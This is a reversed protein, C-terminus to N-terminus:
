SFRANMWEQFGTRQGPSMHLGCKTRRWLVDDAERAWEKEIFWRVEAEYLGGGFWQGLQSEARAEGLVERALTGHRRAYRALLAPPLGPYRLRLEEFLADFGGSAFDGGPLAEQATWGQTDPFWPALRELVHEALRRYTTIKGGFVSVLPAEKEGSGAELVLHYDRTVASPNPSGDDYLPRVGSYTWVVSAAEVPRETYRSAAECLYVIEENSARAPLEREDVPVDTTGILTFEREYPIMFIVRRDPNQLIFAHRRDHIRPVVIHSGKVLRVRGRSPVGIERQLFSEAWPGAANVLARATVEREDESASRLRVRWRDGWREAGTCRTRTLIDAGHSAASRANLVVLRADDVWCDYYAFGRTFVPKLGKGLHEPELVVNRSGPLTSMNRGFGMAGRGLHDYLFLGARIMWAPRLHQEHPLVFQVPWVIHPAIGLLAEREALAEAVLRFEWYELYRLGGHILKTSASSTAGALDGTEALLVKLGRGAADRAIGAGNIGGGIVAIDYRDM